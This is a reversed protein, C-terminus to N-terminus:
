EAARVFARFGTAETVETAIREPDTRAADYALTAGKRDLEFRGVGEMDQLAGRVSARCGRCAMKEIDLAASALGSEAASARLREGATARAAFVGGLLVLGLASVLWFVRNM